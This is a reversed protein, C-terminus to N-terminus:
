KISIRVYRPFEDKIKNDISIPFIKLINDKNKDFLERNGDVFILKESSGDKLITVRIKLSQSVLLNLNDEKVIKSAMNIKLNRLFTRLMSLDVTKKKIVKKEKTIISLPQVVVNNKETIINKVIIKKTILSINNDALLTKKITIKEKLEISTSTIPEDVVSTIYFYYGAYIGAALVLIVGTDEFFGKTKGQM